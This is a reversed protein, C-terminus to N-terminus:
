EANLSMGSKSFVLLLRQGDCQAILVYRTNCVDGGEGSHDNKACHMVALAPLPQLHLRDAACTILKAKLGLHKAALLLEQATAERSPAINLQHGLTKADTSIHHLRSLLSLAALGSTKTIAAGNDLEAGRQVSPPEESKASFANM